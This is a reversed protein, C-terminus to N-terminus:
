TSTARPEPPTRTSNPDRGASPPISCPTPVSPTTRLPGPYSTGSLEGCGGRSSDGYEGPPRGHSRDGEASRQGAQEEDAGQEAGDAARTALVVAASAVPGGVRRVCRPADDVDVAVPRVSPQGVRERLDLHLQGFGLGTLGQRSRLGLHQGEVPRSVADPEDAGPQPRGRTGGETRVLEGSSRVVEM